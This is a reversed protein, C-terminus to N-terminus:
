SWFSDIQAPSTSYVLHGNPLVQAHDNLQHPEAKGPAIIHRVDVNLVVLADAILNRHCRWPVAEACMIVVSRSVALEMLESLADRFETSNMHDAYGRFQENRWYSNPSNALPRRRGGLADRHIYDIDASRLYQPLEDRGFQPYRKSGPYRRVDVLLDIRHERLLDLFEDINRTSHGITFVM